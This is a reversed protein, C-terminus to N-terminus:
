SLNRCSKNQQKSNFLTLFLVIFINKYTNKNTKTFIQYCVLQPQKSFLFFSCLKNIQLNFIYASYQIKMGFYIWFKTNLTRNQLKRKLLVSFLTGFTLHSQIWKILLNEEVNVPPCDTKNVIIHEFINADRWTNVHLKHDLSKARFVPLGAACSFSYKSLWSKCLHEFLLCNGFM